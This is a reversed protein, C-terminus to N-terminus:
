TRPDRVRFDVGVRHSSAEVTTVDAYYSVIATRRLHDGEIPM